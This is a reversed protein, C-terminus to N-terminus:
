ENGAFGGASEPFPLDPSFNERAHMIEPQPPDLVAVFMLPVFKM